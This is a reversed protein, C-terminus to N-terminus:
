VLCVGLEKFNSKNVVNTNTYTDVGIHTLGTYGTLCTRLPKHILEVSISIIIIFPIAKNVSHMMPFRDLFTLTINYLSNMESYLAQVNTVLLCPYIYETFCL